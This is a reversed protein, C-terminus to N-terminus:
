LLTADDIDPGNVANSRIYVRLAMNKQSDKVQTIVESRAQGEVVVVVSVLTCDVAIAIWCACGTVTDSASRWALVTGKLVSREANPGSERPIRTTFFRGASKM